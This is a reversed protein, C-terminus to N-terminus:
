PIPAIPTAHSARAPTEYRVRHLNTAKTLFYARAVARLSGRRQKLLAPVNHQQNYEPVLGPKAM